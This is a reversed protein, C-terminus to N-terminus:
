SCAVSTAGTANIKVATLTFLGNAVTPTQVTASEGDPTITCSVTTANAPLFGQRRRPTIDVTMTSFPGANPGSPKTVYQRITEGAAHAHGGAGGVSTGLRARGNYNVTNGVVSAVALVETDGVIFYNNGSASQFVSGDAVTVSGTGSSPITGTLTTQRIPTPARDMFTNDVAFNFAGATDSTVNWTFGCNICGTPDGDHIGSALRTGTGPNDNISSNAFALYAANLKFLSKPYCIGIDFSSSDCDLAGLAAATDHNGMSWTFGFGRYATELAAVFNIHHLFSEPGTADLTADDKPTTWMLVPYDDGPNATLRTTMDYYSALTTVGDEMLVTNKNSGLTSPATAITARFPMTASWQLGPWYSQSYFTFDWVPYSVWVASIRPSTMPIATMGAGIGGMSSGEWHIQNPDTGYNSVAWNLMRVISRATTLRRRNAPGSLPNPTDGTGNHFTEISDTGLPNWIDDRIAAILTNQRYSTAKDLYVDLTAARGDQWGENASFFWQWYDGQQCFQVGCGSASSSGHAKLVLPLGSTSIDIKGSTTGRSLSDAWKIPIITEVSEAIPGVSGIYTETGGATWLNPGATCVGGPCAHAIVAYYADESDLATYAQLGSHAPRETGLNTLKVRPRSGTQKYAQTFGLTTTNAPDGGILQASNNLIYSAIVTASSYNGSTIPSTSRRLTYRWNNGAADVDMDMWTVFTQGNQFQACVGGTGCAQAVGDGSGVGGGGGRLFPPKAEAGAIGLCLALILFNLTRYM